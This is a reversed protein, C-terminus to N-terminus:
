IRRWPNMLAKHILHSGQITEINFSDGALDAQWRDRGGSVPSGTSASLSSRHSRRDRRRGMSLSKM